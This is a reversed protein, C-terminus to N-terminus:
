LFTITFGNSVDVPWFTYIGNGTWPKFSPAGNSDILKLISTPGPSGAAMVQVKSNNTGAYLGDRSVGPLVPFSYPALNVLVDDVMVSSFAVSATPYITATLNNSSIDISDNFDTDDPVGSGTPVCNSITFSVTIDTAAVDPTGTLNVVKGNLTASMWSPGVFDSLTMPESGTFEISQNYAQGIVGDPLTFSNKRAVPICPVFGVNSIIPSAQDICNGSVVFRFDYIGNPLTLARNGIISGLNDTWPDASGTLRYQINLQAAPASLDNFSFTITFTNNGNNVIVQNIGTVIPCNQLSTTTVTRLTSQGKFRYNLELSGINKGNHLIPFYDSDSVRVKYNEPRHSLPWTKNAWTGKKFSNLHIPLSQNDEHQLTANVVFFDNSVTGTGDVPDIGVSGQIPATGEPAIFGNGDVGSSRFKCFTRSLIFPVTLIQGGGNQGLTKRLYEQAADQIDFEWETDVINKKSFITKSLTKYFVGNFYIDCYVVPPVPDGGTKNASVRLVVPRYAAQIDDPIPQSIIANIPM